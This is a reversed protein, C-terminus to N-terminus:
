STFSEVIYIYIGAGPSCNKQYVTHTNWPKFDAGVSVHHICVMEAGEGADWYPADVPQQNERDEEDCAENHVGDQPCVADAPEYRSLLVLM